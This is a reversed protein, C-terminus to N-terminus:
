IIGSLIKNFRLKVDPLIGVAADKDTPSSATLTGSPFSNKLCDPLPVSAMRENNVNSAGIDPLRNNVPEIIGSWPIVPENNPVLLQAFLEIEEETAVVALAAAEIVNVDNEFM